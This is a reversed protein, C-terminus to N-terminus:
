PCGFFKVRGGIDGRKTGIDDVEVCFWSAPCTGGEVVDVVGDRTVPEVFDGFFKVCTPCSRVRSLDIIRIHSLSATM